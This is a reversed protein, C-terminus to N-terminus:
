RCREVFGDVPICYSPSCAGGGHCYGDCDCYPALMVARDVLWSRLAGMKFFAVKLQGPQFLEQARTIVDALSTGFSQGWQPEGDAFAPPAGLEVAERVLVAQDESLSPAQGLSVFASRWAESREDPRDVEFPETALVMGQLATFTLILVISSNLFGCCLKRM